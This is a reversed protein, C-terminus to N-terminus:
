FKKRWRACAEEEVSDAFAGRPIYGQADMFTPVEELIDIAWKLIVATKREKCHPAMNRYHQKAEDLTV